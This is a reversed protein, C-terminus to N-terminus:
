PSTSIVGQLDKLKQRLRNLFSLAKHEHPTARVLSLDERTAWCDSRLMKLSSEDLYVLHQSGWVRFGKQRFQDVMCELAGPAIVTNNQLLGILEGNVQQPVDGLRQILRLGLTESEQEEAPAYRSWDPHHKTSVLLFELNPYGQATLSELTSPLLKEGGLDLVVSVLPLECPDIASRTHIRKTLASQFLWSSSLATAKACFFAEASRVQNGLSYSRFRNLGAIQEDYSQFALQSKFCSIAKQKVIEVASIDILRNPTQPSSVEYFWLEASELAPTRGSEILSRLAEIAALAVAQHDPHTETLAPAFILQPTHRSITERMRAILPPSFRVGRDPLNWFEPESYGLVAAAQRAEDQRLPAPNYCLSASGLAGDTVVVVHVQTGRAALLQLTAGCGLVEDDAHPAFVLVRRVNPLPTPNVPMTAAEPSVDLM